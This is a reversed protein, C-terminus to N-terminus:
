HIKSQDQKPSVPSGSSSPFRSLGLGAKANAARSKSGLMGEVSDPLRHDFGAGRLNRKLRSAYELLVPHRVFDHQTLVRADAECLKAAGSVKDRGVDFHNNDAVLVMADLNPEHYMSVPQRGYAPPSIQIGRNQILFQEFDRALQEAHGMGQMSREEPTPMELRAQEVVVCTPCVHYVSKACIELSNNLELRQVFDALKAPHKRAVRIEGCSEMIGTQVGATVSAKEGYADSVLGFLKFIKNNHKDIIVLAESGSTVQYAPKAESTQSKAAHEEMLYLFHGPHMQAARPDESHWIAAVKKTVHALDEPCPFALLADYLAAYSISSLGSM